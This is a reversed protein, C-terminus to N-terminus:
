FDVGRNRCFTGDEAIIVTLPLSPAIRNLPVYIREVRSGTLSRWLMPLSVPHGSRYLPVLLYPLAVFLLVIIGLAVLLRRLGTPLALRVRPKQGLAQGSEVSDPHARSPHAHSPHEYSEHTKADGGQFAAEARPGLGLAPREPSM